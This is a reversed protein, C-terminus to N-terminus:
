GLCSILRSSLKNLIFLYIFKSILYHIFFTERKSFLATGDKGAAAMIKKGGPHYPIYKTIDYVKGNLAMWCDDNSKHRKM